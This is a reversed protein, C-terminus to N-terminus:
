ISLFIHYFHQRAYKLLTQSRKGHQKGYPRRCRSNKSMQKVVYKLGYKRGYM